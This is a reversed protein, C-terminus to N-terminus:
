GLLGTSSYVSSGTPMADSAAGGGIGGNRYLDYWKAAVGSASGLLSTGAAMAPSANEAAARYNAGQLKYGWAARAANNRITALDVDRMYRTSQDITVPAGENLSVGNAAFAARQRGIMQNTDRSLKSAQQEGRSLADVAQLDALKANTEAVNRTNSAASGAGFASGFAGLVSPILSAYGGMGGAAAGAADGGLM